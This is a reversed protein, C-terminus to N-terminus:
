PIKNIEVLLEEKYALLENKKSIQAKLTKIAVILAQKDIVATRPIDLTEDLQYEGSPLKKIKYKKAM